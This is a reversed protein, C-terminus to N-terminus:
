TASRSWFAYRGTRGGCSPCTPFYVREAVPERGLRRGCRVPVALGCSECDHLPEAEHDHLYVEILESPLESPLVPHDVELLSLWARLGRGGRRPTTLLTWVDRRLEIPVAALFREEASTSGLDCHLNTELYLSM